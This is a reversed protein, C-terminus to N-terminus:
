VDDKRVGFFYNGVNESGEVETWGIGPVYVVGMSRWGNWGGKRKFYGGLEDENVFKAWDHTGRPVIRLVDEAVVKTTLWSLWHRAITSLIIWGGPKVHRACVDLFASPYEVHELVEFVTLVDARQADTHPM